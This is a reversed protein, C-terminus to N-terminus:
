ERRGMKEVTELRLSKLTGRVIVPMETEQMGGSAAKRYQSWAVGGIENKLRDMVRREIRDRDEQSLQSYAEELRRARERAHQNAVQERIREREAREQEVQLRHNRESAIQESIPDPRPRYDDELAKLTFGPVNKILRGERLEKEVYKLIDDIYEEEFRSLVDEVQVASLGFTGLRRALPRREEFLDLTQKTEAVGEQKVSLSTSEAGDFNPNERMNFKLAIVRRKRRRYEVSLKIDSHRTVERIAPKLVWQSFSKFAPYQEPEVGLLKRWQDVDIWGTTGVNRFRICNEYLALAYGSRFRRQISLNIRAYIEPSYLRRRLVPSFAYTFHSSGKKIVAQALLPSAGWEERGSEDLINWEIVIRMLGRLSDKLVTMNKSDFGAIEALDRIRILHEEQTPLESYANLLLVNAVKRQLLTLKGHTHVAGVHKKLEKRGEAALSMVIPNGNPVPRDVACFVRILM